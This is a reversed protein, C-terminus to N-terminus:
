CDSRAIFIGTQQSIQNELFFRHQNAENKMTENCWKKKSFQIEYQVPIQNCLNSEKAFIELETIIFNWKSSLNPKTKIRCFHCNPMFFRSFLSHADGGGSSSHRHRAYIYLFCFLYTIVMDAAMECM